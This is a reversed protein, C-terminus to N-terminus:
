HLFANAQKAVWTSVPDAQMIWAGGQEIISGTALTNVRDGYVASGLSLLLFSKFLFFAGVLILLANLPLRPARRRPRAVILGDSLMRLRVGNRMRAHVQNIRNLRKEFPVQSMAM